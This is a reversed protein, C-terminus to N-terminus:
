RRLAPINALWTTAVGALMASSALSVVWDARWELAFATGVLAGVVAVYLGLGGFLVRGVRSDNHFVCAFPIAAVLSAAGWITAPFWSAAAGAVVLLLGLAVGGGVLVAEWREAPRLAHRALRDALLLLGGVGRALFSWLAFSLYIVTVAVGLPALAGTFLQRSFRFALYLGIIVMWRQGQSLRQMFFCWGLYGRYLPSRGKFAELLGHRAAENGPHLRLAELFHTEADRRRGAQLASWGASVHTASNEPDRELMGRLQAANEEMKNQLRLAHALHNAATADDADLALARRASAEAEAWREQRLLVYTLANHGEGFGPELAIAQEAAARAEDLKRLDTLIQAHLAHHPATEPALGIADRITTLARAEGGDQHYQCQALLYLLYDNRPSAQLAERLKAEAEPFRGQRLLLDAHHLLADLHPSSDM